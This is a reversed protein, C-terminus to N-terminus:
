GCTRRGAGSCSGCSSSPRPPSRPTCPRSPTGRWWWWVGPWALAAGRAADPRRVLRDTLWLLLPILAWVSSHPYILWCVLWLNFGFATGALLAGGFRMGLAGGLLFTGFAAVFLKLAATVALSEYFPMVWAPLSFPSFVASQMNALFPRGGVIHPNWLPVDPLREKAYQTFLYLQAPADGVEPNAPRDLEAPIDANWPAHVM